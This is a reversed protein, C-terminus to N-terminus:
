KGEKRNMWWDYIFLLVVSSLGIAAIVIWLKSPSYQQWLLDTLQRESLGLQTAAASFYENQSLGEGIAIGKQAVYDRVITVKDSMAQYVNGSIFGAIVNGIFIPIFSYGMYAAKKDPPAITGVYENIKPSGAMEGLAFILIAVLTFFVNQTVLTLAMGITCVLFGAVMSRLPRMRMVLASVGIQLLIITLADFNTVLEADIVGPAPSYHNSFFPFYRAFFDYLPETDVWQAVFVPLTYFLQNYMTWFGAAILLFVIFKGDRLIDGMNRFITRFTTSLPERATKERGPEKYFPLLLLNLAMIGASLYFVVPYNGKFLLTVIPGFFGGINIMMYFIGFGISANRENTTKAVTASVIPKFIAAAVALYIYVAFVAPYSKVQPLIVLASIYILFSVLLMRKYGYRDAIAGTLVPLFYLIGTGVGMLMGKQAQTFELGGAESSGTLYNALLMFVGYWAWREFLELTNSVWFTRPFSNFKGM